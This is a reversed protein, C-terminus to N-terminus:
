MATSVGTVNPGSSIPNNRLEEALTKEDVETIEATELIKDVVKADRVQLFLQELHGTQAMQQRLKEPRRGYLGAIQAVRAPATVDGIRALHEYRERLQAAVHAV